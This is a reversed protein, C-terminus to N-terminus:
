LYWFFNSVFSGFYFLIFLCNICLFSMFFWSQRWCLLIIALVVLTETKSLFIYFCHLNLTSHWFTWEESYNLIYISSIFDFDRFFM